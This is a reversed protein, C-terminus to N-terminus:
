KLMEVGNGYHINSIKTQRKKNSIKKQKDQVSTLLLRVQYLSEVYANMTVPM